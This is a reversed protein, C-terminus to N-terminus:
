KRIKHTPMQHMHFYSDTKMSFLNNVDVLTWFDM